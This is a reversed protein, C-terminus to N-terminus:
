QPTITVRVVDSVAPYAYGDDVVMVVGGEDAGTNPGSQRPAQDLGAGPFQNVETGADWLQIQATLDGSIPAGDESFLALGAADLGYFLDNSQVLMNAFSLHDGPAAEVTFSYRAGSFLPGPGDAGEPVAYAGAAYGADLLSAELGSPDGDEALAELGQGLDAEGVEFLAPQEGHVVWVGPALPGVLATREALAAALGDIAGDEALAELGDGADPQGEMFLPAEGEGHVAWVGPAVPVPSDGESSTLTTGTSVNTLRLSFMSDGHAILEVSLVDSVEPLNGFDDSALRVSTDPDAPGTDADGQNLVQNPGAGPEENAETGADWLLVEDTVDGSRPNGEADYLAIGDSDPGYFLDNSPVFMHAFSIAHGPGAHFDVVYTSGPLLPGPEDAGEPVATTGSLLHGTSPSVNEIEVVFTQAEGGSEEEGEDETSDDEGEEDADAGDTGDEGLEDGDDTPDMPDTCAALSFGFLTALSLATISLRSSQDFQLTM